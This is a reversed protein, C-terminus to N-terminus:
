ERWGVILEKGGPNVHVVVFSIVRGKPRNM